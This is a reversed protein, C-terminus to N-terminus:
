DARAADLSLCTVLFTSLRPQKAALDWCTCSVLQSPLHLPALETLGAIARSGVGLKWAHLESAAKSAVNSQLDFSSDQRVGGKM